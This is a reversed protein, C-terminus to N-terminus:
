FDRVELPDLYLVKCCLGVCCYCCCWCCCNWCYVCFYGSSFLVEGMLLDAFWISMLEEMWLRFVV